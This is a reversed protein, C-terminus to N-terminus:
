CVWGVMSIWMLLGGKFFEEGRGLVGLGVIGGLFFIGLEKKVVMELILVFLGMFMMGSYSGM